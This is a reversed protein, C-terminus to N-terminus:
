YNSHLASAISSENLILINKNNLVHIELNFDIFIIITSILQWFQKHINPDVTSISDPIIFIAGYRMLHEAGAGIM